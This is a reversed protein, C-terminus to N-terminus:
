YHVVTYNIVNNTINVVIYHHNAPHNEEAPAGAGGSIIFPTKGWVGTYYNHIHSAFIMTVNNADFLSTLADAGGIGDPVMSHEEYSAGDPTYLPVHMFVFRYKYNQSRNLQDQLWKMQTGNLPEGNANDIIIFYSNQESFNYYTPSGFVSQYISATPDGTLEHNGIVFIVPKNFHTLKGPTLYDIKFGNLEAAESRLDGGNINFLLDPYNSNINDIMKKFIGQDDREDGSYSFTFNSESHSFSSLQKYNWNLSTQQTNFIFLGTSILVLSAIVIATATLYKDPPNM